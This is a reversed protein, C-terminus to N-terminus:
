CLKIYLRMGVRSTYWNHINKNIFLFLGLFCGFFIYVHSVFM